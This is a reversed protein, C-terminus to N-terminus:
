EVTRTVYGEGSLASLKDSLTRSSIGSLLGKLNNFRAPGGIYLASCIEINWRQSLPSLVSMAVNVEWQLGYPAEKPARILSRIDRGNAETGEILKWISSLDENDVTHPPLAGEGEENADTDLM